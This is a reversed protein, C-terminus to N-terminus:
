ANNSSETDTLGEAGTSPHRRGWLRALLLVTLLGLVALIAWAWLRAPGASSPPTIGFAEPTFATEPPPVPDFSVLRAEWILQGDWERRLWGHTVIPIGDVERDHDYRLECLLSNYLRGEEGSYPWRWRELIWGRAPVLSFEGLLDLVGRM